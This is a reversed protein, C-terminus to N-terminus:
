GQSSPSATVPHGMMDPSGQWAYGAIALTLAAAILELASRSMRGFRWLGLLTTACIATLLLWGM